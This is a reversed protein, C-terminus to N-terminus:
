EGDTADASGFLSDGPILVDSLLIIDGSLIETAEIKPSTYTKKM